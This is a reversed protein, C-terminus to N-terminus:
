RLNRRNWIRIEMLQLQGEAFVSRNVACLGTQQFVTTEPHIATRDPFMPVCWDTVVISYRLYCLFM